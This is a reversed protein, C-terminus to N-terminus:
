QPMGGPAVPLTFFFESGQGPSSSLSIDEGHARMIERVIALGMGTGQLHRENKGRYFKEFIQRQEEETIGQGQDALYVVVKGENLRAGITIPNAPPSYKLANDLLHTLVVQILESDVRVPPLDDPVSVDIKREATLSKM